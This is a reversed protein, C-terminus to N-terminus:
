FHDWGEARLAVEGEPTRMHLGPRSVLAGIRTVREGVAAGAATLHPEHEPPAAFLLEYDDGGTLILPM